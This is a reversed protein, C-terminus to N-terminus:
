IPPIQQYGINLVTLSINSCRPHTTPGWILMVHTKIQSGLHSVNLTIDLCHTIKLNTQIELKFGFRNFLRRLKKRITDCKKPTINGLIILGDDHYLGHIYSDVINNLNYLLLCGVLECHQTEDFAGMPTDFNGGAGKKIWIINDYYLRRKRCKSM